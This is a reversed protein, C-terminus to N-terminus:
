PRGRDETSWPQRLDARAHPNHPSYVAGDEAHWNDWRRVYRRHGSPIRDRDEHRLLAPLPLIAQFPLYFLPLTSAGKKIQLVRSFIRGSIHKNERFNPSTCRRFNVRLERRRFQRQSESTSLFRPERPFKEQYSIKQRLPHFLLLLRIKLYIGHKKRRRLRLRDEPEATGPSM